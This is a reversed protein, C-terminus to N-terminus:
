AFPEDPTLSFKEDLILDGDQPPEPPQVYTAAELHQRLIPAYRSIASRVIGLRSDRGFVTLLFFTPTLPCIYFHTGGGQHFLGECAEEGLRRALEQVAFFAGNALAGIEDVNTVDEGADALISGSEELVSVYRAEASLLFDQLTNRLGKATKGTLVINAGPFMLRSSM